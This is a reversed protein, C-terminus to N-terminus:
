NKINLLASHVRSSHVWHPRLDPGSSVLKASDTQLRGAISVLAVFRHGKQMMSQYGRTLNLVYNGRQPLAALRESGGNVVV